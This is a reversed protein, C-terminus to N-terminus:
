GTNTKLADYVAKPREHGSAILTSAIAEFRPNGVAYAAIMRMEDWPHILPSEESSANAYHDLKALTDCDDLIPAAFAELVTSLEAALARVQSVCSVEFVYRLKEARGTPLTVSARAAANAVDISTRRRAYQGLKDSLQKDFKPEILLGIDFDFHLDRKEVFFHVYRVCEAGDKRFAPKETVDFGRREMMPRMGEVLLKRLHADSAIAEPDEDDPPAAPRSPRGAAIVEGRSHYLVQAEDDYVHLGVANAAAVIAAILGEDTTAQKLALPWVKGSAASVSLGEEWVNRDDKGDVDKKSLDPYTEVIAKKFASFKRRAGPPKDQEAAVFSEATEPTAVDRSDILHLLFAMACVTITHIWSARRGSASATGLECIWRTPSSSAEYLVLILYTFGGSNFAGVPLSLLLGLVILGSLALILPRLSNMLPPVTWSGLLNVLGIAIASIIFSILAWVALVLVIRGVHGRTLEESATFAHRPSKAAFLLCPLSLSWRALRLVLMATMVLMAVGIAAGAAWFEPPRRSPYYNIDHETLALWYVFGSVALFPMVILLVRVLLWMALKLVPLVRLAAFRLAALIDLKL